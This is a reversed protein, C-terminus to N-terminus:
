RGLSSLDPPKKMSTKPSLDEEGDGILGVGGGFKDGETLVEAIRRAWLM